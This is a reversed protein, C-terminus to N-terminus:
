PVAGAPVPLAPEVLDTVTTGVLGLAIALVALVLAPVERYRPVVVGGLATTRPGAAVPDTGESGAGGITVRVVRAVYAAALLGGGVLPIAWWWQGSGTSSQLVLFKGTFGLSPPLGALSIGALAFAAVSLPQRAGAGRLGDLRDTGHGAALAGAALFM